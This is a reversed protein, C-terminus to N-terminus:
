GNFRHKGAPRAGPANMEAVREAIRVRRRDVEQAQAQLERFWVPDGRLREAQLQAAVNLAGQLSLWRRALQQELAALM